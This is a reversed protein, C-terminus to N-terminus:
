RAGLRSDIQGGANIVDSESTLSRLTKWFVSKFDWLADKFKSGRSAQLQCKVSTAQCCINPDGYLKAYSRFGDIKGLVPLRTFMHLM